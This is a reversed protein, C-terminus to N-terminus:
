TCSRAVHHRITSAVIQTTPPCCCMVLTTSSWSKSFDKHKTASNCIVTSERVVTDVNTSVKDTKLHNVMEVHDSTRIVEVIEVLGFRNSSM